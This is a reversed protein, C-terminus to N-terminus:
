RPEAEAPTGHDAMDAGATESRARAMQPSAPPATEPDDFCSKEMYFHFPVFIMRYMAILWGFLLVAMSFAVVAEIIM